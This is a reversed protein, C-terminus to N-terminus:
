DCMLTDRTARGTVSNVGRAVACLKNQMDRRMLVDTFDAGDISAGTFDTNFAFAGELVADALNAHVFRASDLTAYSLNAEELNADELNAAFLRVGTLDTHSLNSSRLNAKDFSSNVLRQGSFDANVLNAKDYDDAWAPAGLLLGWVLGLVIGCALFRQWGALSYRVLQNLM